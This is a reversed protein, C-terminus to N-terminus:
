GVSDVANAGTSIVQRNKLLSPAIEKTVFRVKSYCLIAARLLPLRSMLLHQRGFLRRRSSGRRCKCIPHIAPNVDFNWIEHRDCLLVVKLNQIAHHTFICFLANITHRGSYM